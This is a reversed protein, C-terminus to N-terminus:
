IVKKGFSIISSEQESKNTSKNFNNSIGNM